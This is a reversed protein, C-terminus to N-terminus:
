RVIMCCVRGPGHVGKILVGEIDATKSPGTILIRESPPSATEMGFLTSMDAAIDGAHVIALHAPPVLSLSRPQDPAAELVLTGTEAIAAITGTIGADADFFAAESTAGGARWPLITFGEATLSAGLSRWREGDPLVLREVGWAHLQIVIAATLRAESTNVVEMGADAAARAFREVPEANGEPRDVRLLTADVAPPAPAPEGAQRNLALRIRNLMAGRGAEDVRGSREFHSNSM